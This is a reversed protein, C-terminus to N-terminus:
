AFINERNTGGLVHMHMGFDQWLIPLGPCLGLLVLCSLSNKTSTKYQVGFVVLLFQYSFWLSLIAKKQLETYMLSWASIATDISKLLTGM